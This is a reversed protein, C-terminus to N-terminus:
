HRRAGTRIGDKFEDLLRKGGRSEHSHDARKHRARCLRRLMWGICEHEFEGLARLFQDVINERFKAGRTPRIKAFLLPLHNSPLLDTVSTNALPEGPRLVIFIM